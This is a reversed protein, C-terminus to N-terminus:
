QGGDGAGRRLLPLVLITFLKGAGVNPHVGPHFAIAFPLADGFPDHLQRFLLLVSRLKDLDSALLEFSSTLPEPSRIAHCALGGEGLGSGYRIGVAAPLSLLPRPKGIAASKF